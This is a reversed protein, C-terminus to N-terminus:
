KRAEKRLRGALKRAEQASSATAIVNYYDATDLSIEVFTDTLVTGALRLRVDYDDSVYFTGPELESPKLPEQPLHKDLLEALSYTWGYFDDGYSFKVWGVTVAFENAIELAKKRPQKTM